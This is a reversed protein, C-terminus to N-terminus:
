KKNGDLFVDDSLESGLCSPFGADTENSKWSDSTVIIKPIERVVTKPSKHM